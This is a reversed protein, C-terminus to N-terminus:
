LAATDSSRKQRDLYANAIDVINKDLDSSYARSLPYRGKAQGDEIVLVIRHTENDGYMTELEFRTVEQLSFRYHQSGRVGLWRVTVTEDVTDITLRGRETLLLTAAFFVTSVFLLLWASGTGAFLHSLGVAFVALTALAFIAVFWVPRYEMVFARDTNKLIKM